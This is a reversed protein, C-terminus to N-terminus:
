TVPMPNMTRYAIIPAKAAINPDSNKMMNQSAVLQRGRMYEASILFHSGGFSYDANKKKTSSWGPIPGPVEIKGLDREVM